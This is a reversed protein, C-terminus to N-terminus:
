KLLNNLVKEAELYPLSRKENKISFVMIKSDPDSSLLKFGYSEDIVIIEIALAGYKDIKEQSYYELMDNPDANEDELYGIRCKDYNSYLEYFSKFQKLNTIKTLVCDNSDVRKFVIFDGIHLLKRREDNTRMEVDKLKNKIFRFPKEYLTYNHIM